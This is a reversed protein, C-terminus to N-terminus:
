RNVARIVEVGGSINRDCLCKVFVKRRVGPADCSLRGRKNRALGLIPQVREADDQIEQVVINLVELLLDQVVAAVPVDAAAEYAAFASEVATREDPNPEPNRNRDNM